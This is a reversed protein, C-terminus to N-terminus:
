FIVGFSFANLDPGKNSAFVKNMDYNFFFDTSRFGVQLRAGYRLNSLYFNDKNHDKKENGGEDYVQKSHSGIRYGVYPGLGIRFSDSKGDWTKKKTRGDGFDIVPILSANIYTATLKSKTFHFTPEASRPDDIFNVGNDDKQILVNDNEFKFNYWSIGGGWELFFKKAVRSRQISSIGVYWSGWPRVSYAANNDDPFKGNSIFNNMGLDFNISSRGSHKHWRHNHKRLCVSDSVDDTENKALQESTTDSKVVISTDSEELRSIVDKFLKAFDYNKLTELDERDKVTFIIQSSKALPIKVTDAKKEQATAALSTLIIIGTLVFNKM